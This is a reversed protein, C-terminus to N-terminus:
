NEEHFTISTIIKELEPDDTWLLKMNHKDKNSLNKYMELEEAYPIIYKRRAHLYEYLPLMKTKKYAKNILPYIWEDKKRDYKIQLKAIRRTATRHFSDLNQYMKRTIAWTESGYLLSSLVVAKYFATMIKPQANERTLVPFIRKWKNQAKRINNITAVEDSDDVTMWRGLYLFTDVKEIVEEGIKIEVQNDMANQKVAEENARRKQLNKCLETEKHTMANSVFMKCETCRPLPGEEEIILTVRPHFEAFHRRMNHCTTARGPCNPVPCNATSGDNHVSSTYTKRPDDLMRQPIEQIPKCFVQHINALHRPLSSTQITRQCIHCQKQDKKREKASKGEGTMKHRYNNESMGVNMHRPRCIMAKTKKQNMQLGIQAFWKRFTEVTNILSKIEYSSFVGDDAYFIAEVSNDSKEQKWKTILCDVVINFIM